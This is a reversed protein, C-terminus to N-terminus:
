GGPSGYHGSGGIATTATKWNFGFNNISPDASLDQLEISYYKQAGPWGQTGSSYVVRDLTELTGDSARRKLLIWRGTTTLDMVLTTDLNWAPDERPADSDGIVLFGGSDITVDPIARRRMGSPGVLEVFLTDIILPDSGPNHIEVYDSDGEAYYMIESILLGGNEEAAADADNVAGTILTLGPRVITVQADLSAGSVSFGAELSVDAAADFTLTVTDSALTDGSSSVAVIVVECATGHPIADLEMYLLGSRSERACISGDEWSACAFVSDVESPIQSLNVAISGLRPMLELIVTKEEGPALDGVAATGLHIRRNAGDQTWGTLTFDSGSPIGGLLRDNYPIDSSITVTDRISDVTPSSVVLVLREWSLARARHRRGLNPSAANRIWVKVRLEASGPSASNPPLTGCSLLCLLLPATITAALCQCRTYSM